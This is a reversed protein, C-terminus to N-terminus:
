SYGRRGLLSAASVAAPAPCARYCDACRLCEDQACGFMLSVRIGASQSGRVNGVRHRKPKQDRRNWACFLRVELGDLTVPRGGVWAARTRQEEAM